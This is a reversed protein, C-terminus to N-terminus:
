GNRNREVIEEITGIRRFPKKKVWYFLGKESIVPNIPARHYVLVCPQDALNILYVKYKWRVITGNPQRFM